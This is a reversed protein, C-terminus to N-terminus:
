AQERTTQPVTEDALLVALIARAQWEHLGGVVSAGFDLLEWSDSNKERRIRYKV